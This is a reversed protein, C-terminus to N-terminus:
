GDTVPLFELLVQGSVTFIKPWKFSLNKKGCKVNYPTINGATYTSVPRNAQSKEM